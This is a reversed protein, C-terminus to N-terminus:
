CVLPLLIVSLPHQVQYSVCLPLSWPSSLGEFGLKRHSAGELEMEERLTEVIDGYLTELHFGLM